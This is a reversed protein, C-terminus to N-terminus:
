TFPVKLTITTGNEVKSNIHVSGGLKSARKKYNILGNGEGIEIPNFGRGNDTVVLTFINNEDTLYVSINTAESHKIINQLVEKLVLFINRKATLSMYRNIKRININVDLAYVELFKHTLESLKTIFKEFTDNTPTVFWVIDRMAQSSETAAETIRKFEEQGGNKREIIETMLKIYSLNSGIEDHLDQSIRSRMQEKEVQARLEAEVAKAEAQEIRRLENLRKLKRSSIWQICGYIGMCLTISYLIYAWYRRYWPPLITFSYSTIESLTEYINKAQVKFTYTGEFLNTYDKFIESTYDSWSKDYGELKYSYTTKGSHEYFAAAYEFRLQNQGYDISFSVNKSNKPHHGGFLLSDKNLTIKSVHVAFTQDIDKKIKSDYRILGDETAFWVIGNSDPLIQQINSHPLRNFIRRNILYSGSPQKIAQHVRKHSVFWGNGETDEVLNAVSRSGDSFETGFVDFPKVEHTEMYLNYFGQYSNIIVENNFQTLRIDTLNPTKIKELKMDSFNQYDFKYVSESETSFYIIGDRLEVSSNMNETFPTKFGIQKNQKLNYFNLQGSNVYLINMDRFRSEHLYRVHIDRIKKMQRNKNFYIGDTSLFYVGSIGNYIYYSGINLTKLLTSQQTLDYVYSGTESGLYLRNDKKGLSLIIGQTSVDYEIAQFPSLWDVKAIGNNLFVWVNKQHDLMLGNITNGILGHTRNVQKLLTGNNDIFYLGNKRTGLLIKNENLIVGTNIKYQRIEHDIETTLKKCNKGDFVYIGNQFSGILISGERFTSMFMIYKNKFFPSLASKYLKENQVEYVVSKRSQVYLTKNIRFGYIFPISSIRYLKEDKICFIGSSTTYFIQNEISTISNVQGKFIGSKNLSKYSYSGKNDLELFGLENIGGIFIKNLDKHYYIARVHHNIINIEKWNKGNYRMLNAQNGVFIINESTVVGGWNQSHNKYMKPSFNQLLFDSGDNFSGSSIFLLYLLQLM